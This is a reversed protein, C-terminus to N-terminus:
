RGQYIFGIWLRYASEAAEKKEVALTMGGKKNLFFDCGVGVGYGSDYRTKEEFTGIGFSGEAFLYPQIFGRNINGFPYVHPGASFEGQQLGGGTLATFAGVLRFLRPKTSIAFRAMSANGTRTEGEDPNDQGLNFNFQYSATNTSSLGVYSTSLMSIFVLINFYKM